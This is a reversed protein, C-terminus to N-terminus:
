TSESGAVEGWRAGAVYSFGWVPISRWLLGWTFALGLAARLRVECFLAFAKV